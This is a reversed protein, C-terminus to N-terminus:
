VYLQVEGIVADDIMDARRTLRGHQHAEDHNELRDLITHCHAADPIVPDGQHMTTPLFQITLRGDAPPRIQVVVSDRTQPANFASRYPAAPAELPFLGTDDGAWSSSAASPEQNGTTSGSFHEWNHFMLNGVSYAILGGGTIEIPHVVHPHHGIVVTAGAEILAHGVPRQYEALTGYSAAAFGHPVGWHMAVIVVESEQAAARVAACAEALDPAHASTHVYPAMGPQEAALVPDLAVQQLVRLPAVGPRTKTAAFGPPLASSLGLLAVTGADTAQHVPAMAAPLTDAAGVHSIGAQALATITDNLGVPGYDMAHNNALSVATIGLEALWGAAEPATRHTAAKEAATGRTTLPAELNAFTIEASTMLQALRPDCQSPRSIVTDGTVLVWPRAAEPATTHLRSSM